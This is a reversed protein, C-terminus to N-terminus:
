GQQFAVALKRPKQRMAAGAMAFGAILMAWTAPEPIAPTTGAEEIVLTYSGPGFLDALAYTGTLFTPAGTSGSFLQSGTADLLYADGYFDIISFGGAEDGTWFQLDVIGLAADPFGSVDWITFSSGDFVDPVPSSDLQFSASYDGTLTFNFLVAQAPAAFSLAAAAAALVGVHKMMM